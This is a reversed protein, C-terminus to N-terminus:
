VGNFDLEVVQLAAQYARLALGELADVHSLQGSSCVRHADSHLVPLHERVLHHLLLMGHFAHLLGKDQQQCSALLPFVSLVLYWGNFLRLGCHVSRFLVRHSGEVFSHLAPLSQMSPGIAPFALFLLKINHALVSIVFSAGLM